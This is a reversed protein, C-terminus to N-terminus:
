AASKEAKAPKEAKGTQKRQAAWRKRLAEQIRRRGEPTLNRKKPASAPKAASKAPAKAAPKAASKAARGRRREGAAEGALLARAQKLRAIEQDLEEIIQKVEM